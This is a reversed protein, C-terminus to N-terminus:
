LLDNPTFGNFESDSDEYVVLQEGDSPETEANEEETEQVPQREPDDYLHSKIERALSEDKHMDHM